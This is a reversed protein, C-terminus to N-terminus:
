KESLADRAWTHKIFKEMNISHLNKMLYPLMHEKYEDIYCYCNTPIYSSSDCEFWHSLPIYQMVM